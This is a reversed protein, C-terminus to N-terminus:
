GENFSVEQNRQLWTSEAKGGDSWPATQYDLVLVRLFGCNVRLCGCEGIESLEKCVLLM